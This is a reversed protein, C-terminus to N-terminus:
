KVWLVPGLPLFHVGPALYEGVPKDLVLESGAPLDINFDAFRTTFVGGSQNILRIRQVPQIIVCRGAIPMGSADTGLAIAVQDGQPESCVGAAPTDGEAPKLGSSSNLQVTSLLSKGLDLNGEINIELNHGTLITLVQHIIGGSGSVLTLRAAPQQAILFREEEFISLHVDVATQKASQVWADLDQPIIDEAVLRFQMSITQDTWELKHPPNAPDFSTVTLIAPQGEAHEQLHWSEPFSFQIGLTSSLYMKQPYTVEASASPEPVPNDTASPATQTLMAAVLTEVQGRQPEAQPICATLSILLSLVLALSSRKM